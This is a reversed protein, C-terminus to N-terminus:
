KLPCTEYLAIFYIWTVSLTCIMNKSRAIHCKEDKVMIMSLENSTEPQM